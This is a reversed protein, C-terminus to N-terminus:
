AARRQADHATELHHRLAAFAHESSRCARALDAPHTLHENLATCLTHWRVSPSQGDGRIFHFPFDPFRASFAKHIVHGGLRSGELLYLWGLAEARDTPVEPAHAHGAQPPAPWPVAQEALAQRDAEIWEGLPQASLGIDAAGYLAPLHTLLTPGLLGHVIAHLHAAYDRLDPQHLRLASASEVARHSAATASRLATLAARQAATDSTLMLEVRAPHAPHACRITAYALRTVRDPEPNM